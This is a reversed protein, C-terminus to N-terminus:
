VLLKEVLTDLRDIASLAGHAKHTSLQAATARLLRQYYLMAKLLDKVKQAELKIPTRATWERISLQKKPEWGPYISVAASLDSLEQHTFTLEFTETLENM